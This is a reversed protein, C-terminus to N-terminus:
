QKPRKYFLRGYKESGIPSATAVLEWGAEGMAKCADQQKLFDPTQAVCQYEWRQWSVKEQAVSSQNFSMSLCAVAVGCVLVAVAISKCMALRRLFTFDEMFRDTGNSAQWFVVPATKKTAVLERCRYASPRVPFPMANLVSQCTRRLPLETM